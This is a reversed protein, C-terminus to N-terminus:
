AMAGLGIIFALLTLAVVLRARSAKPAQGADIGGNSAPPDSAMGAVPDIMLRGYM